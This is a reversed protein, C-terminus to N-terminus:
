VVTKLGRKLAENWTTSQSSGFTLTAAESALSLLFADAINPSRGLRKKTEDKPEVMLKGSSTVSYRTAVLEQFLKEKPDEREHTGRPIKCDRAELWERAKFWLESRLNRYRDSFAAAESVNVGRISVNPMKGQAELERLRDAVGAGLGIVDILIEIPRESPLTLDWQEKIRGALQMTDLGHWVKIDDLLVNRKRRVLVSDDSGFRAVDVGWVERATYLPEVDRNQAATALEYPIVTDADATPFEGLVRIRYPNSDEGYLIAQEEKYRETVRNSHYAGEPKPDSGSFHGVHYRKWLHSLRHHSEYFSGSSRTPNSLFLTTANSGSMSGSAAEFIAEPVGSAEDVVILVHESHVGQLAEPQDAKSTRASFFSEEPAAILEIRDYKVDFLQQLTPQLRGYWKRVESYLADFLQPKTPATAVSKQPFRTLLMAWICWSAVATKGPGQASRISLRRECRGFDRLVEAQWDDPEVGFVERVLLVPGEAGAQPGYRKVFELLANSM